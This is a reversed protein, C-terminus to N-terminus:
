KFGPTQIIDSPKQEQMTEYIEADYASFNMQNKTKKDM